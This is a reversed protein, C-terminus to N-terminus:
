RRFKLRDARPKERHRCRERVCQFVRKDFVRWREPTVSAEHLLAEVGVEVGGARKAVVATFDHSLEFRAVDFFRPYFCEPDAVIVNEAKIDFDRLEVGLWQERRRERIPEPM